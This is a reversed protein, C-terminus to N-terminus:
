LISYDRHEMCKDIRKYRIDADFFGELRKIMDECEQLDQYYFKGGDISSKPDYLPNYSSCNALVLLSLILLIKKM